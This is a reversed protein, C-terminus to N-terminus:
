INTAAPIGYSGTSSWQFANPLNLDAKTSNDHSFSLSSVSNTSTSPACSNYDHSGGPPSYYQQSSFYQQRPSTTYSPYDTYPSVPYNNSQRYVSDDIVSSAGYTPSHETVPPPYKWIPNQYQYPPLFSGPGKFSRM